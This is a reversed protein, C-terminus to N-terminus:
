SHNSFCVQKKREPEKAGQEPQSVEDPSVTLRLRCVNMQFFFLLKSKSKLMVFLLKLLKSQLIFQALM